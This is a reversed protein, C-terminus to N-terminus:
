SATNGVIEVVEERDNDTTKIQHLGHRGVVRAQLASHAHCLSCGVPTCAEGTLTRYRCAFTVWVWCVISRAGAEGTGARPVATTAALICVSMGISKSLRSIM